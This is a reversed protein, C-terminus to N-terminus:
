TNVPLPQFGSCLLRMWTIKGDAVVAYAHQEIVFGGNGNIGRLRYSFGHREGVRTAAAGVIEMSDSSQFWVGLFVEDVVAAPTGAEWTRKPTLARFDVSDAFMARLAASNKAAVAAAFRNGLDQGISDAATEPSHVSM